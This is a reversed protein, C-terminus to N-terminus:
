FPLGSPDAWRDGASSACCDLFLLTCQGRKPRVASRPAHWGLRWQNSYLLEWKGSQFLLDVLLVLAYGIRFLAEARGDSQTFFFAQFKAKCPALM